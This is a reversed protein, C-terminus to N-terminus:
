QTTIEKKEDETNEREVNEVYTNATIYRFKKFIIILKKTECFM